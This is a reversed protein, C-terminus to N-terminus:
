LQGRIALVVIGTIVSGLIGYIWKLLSSHSNLREEHRMLMGSTKTCHALCNNQTTRIDKQIETLINMLKGNEEPM